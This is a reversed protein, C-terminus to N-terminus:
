KLLPFPLLLAFEKLPSEAPAPSAEWVGNYYRAEGRERFHGWFLGMVCVLM